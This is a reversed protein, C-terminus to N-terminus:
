CRIRKPFYKHYFPGVGRGVVGEANRGRLTRPPCSSRHNRGRSEKIEAARRTYHRPIKRGDSVSAAVCFAGQNNVKPPGSGDRKEMGVDEKRKYVLILPMQKKLVKLYVTQGKARRYKSLRESQATNHNNQELVIAACPRFPPTIKVDGRAPRSGLDSIIWM